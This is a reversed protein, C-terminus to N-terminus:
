KGEERAIPGAEPKVLLLGGRKECCKRLANMACPTENWMGEMECWFWGREQANVKVAPRACVKCRWQALIPIQIVAFAQHAPCYWAEFVGAGPPVLAALSEEGQCCRKMWNEACPARRWAKERGCWFWEMRQVDLDVPYKGCSACNGKMDLSGPAVLYSWCDPCFPASFRVSATEAPRGAGLLVLGGFLFGMMLAKM